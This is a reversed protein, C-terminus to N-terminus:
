CHGLLKMKNCLSIGLEILRDYEDEKERVNWFSLTLKKKYIYLYPKKEIYELLKAQINHDILKKTFVNDRCHISFVTDFSPNGIGVIKKKLIKNIGAEFISYEHLRMCLFKTQNFYSKLNFEVIVGASYPYGYPGAGEDGGGPEEHYVTFVTECHNFTFYPFHICFHFKNDEVVGNLKVALKRFLRIREEINLLEM